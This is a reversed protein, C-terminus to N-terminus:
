ARIRHTFHRSLQLLFSEMAAVTQYNLELRGKMAEMADISHGIAQSCDPHQRGLVRLREQMSILMRHRVGREISVEHAEEVEAVEDPNDALPAPTSKLADKVFLELLVEFRACLAYLPLIVDLPKPTAATGALVGLWRDFDRLWNAWADDTILPTEGGLHFRLCRSLVTPLVSYYNVTQLVILTGPPPEELTKLFANASVPNFRDAEHIIVARHSTLSTLHFSDVVSQVSDIDIRRSRKAPRLVRCDPHALPDTTELHVGVIFEAARELLGGDAGTLLIAHPMRGQARAKMLVKMAPLEALNSSADSSKM